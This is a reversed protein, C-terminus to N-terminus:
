SATPPVSVLKTVSNIVDAQGNGIQQELQVVAGTIDDYQYSTTFGSADDASDLRGM